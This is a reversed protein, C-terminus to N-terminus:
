RAKTSLKVIDQELTDNQDILQEIADRLFELNSASRSERLIANLTLRRRKAINSTCALTALTERTDLTAAM